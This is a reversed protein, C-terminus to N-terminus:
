LQEHPSVTIVCVYNTYKRFHTQTNHNLLFKSSVAVFECREGINQGHLTTDGWTVPTSSYTSMEM